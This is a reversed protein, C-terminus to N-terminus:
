GPWEDLEDVSQQVDQPIPGVEAAMQDLLNRLRRGQLQQRVAANVFASVGGAGAVQRLEEAVATDFAISLKEYKM